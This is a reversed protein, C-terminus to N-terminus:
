LKFLVQKSLTFSKSLSATSTASDCLQFNIDSGSSIAGNIQFEVSTPGAKLISNGSIRWILQEDTDVDNDDPNLKVTIKRREIVAKGRAQNFVAKLEQTSRNLNQKAVLNSFAPVAFMAIIALVAITVLLEILTFGKNKNM